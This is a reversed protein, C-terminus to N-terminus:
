VNESVEMENASLSIADEIIKVIADINKFYDMLLFDDPVEINFHSEIEVVMSIFTISDIGLDNVLDAHEILDTDFGKKNFLASILNILESKINDTNM